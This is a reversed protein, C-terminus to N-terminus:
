EANFSLGSGQLASISYYPNDRFTPDGYIKQAMIELSYFGAPITDKPITITLANTSVAYVTQLATKVQILYTIENGCSNWAIQIDSSRSLVQGALVSSGVADRFITVAPKILVPTYPVSLTVPENSLVSSVEFSYNTEGTTEGGTGIYSFTESDFHLMTIQNAADRVLVAAGTLANGDPGEAHATFQVSGNGLSEVVARIRPVNATTQAPNNCGLFMSILLFAICCLKLLKM